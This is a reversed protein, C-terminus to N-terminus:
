RSPPPLTIKPGIYNGTAPDLRERVLGLLVPSGLEFAKVGWGDGRREYRDSTETERGSQLRLWLKITVEGPWKHEEVSFVQMAEMPDAMVSRNLASVFLAAVCVAEPTRFRERLAPSLKAMFAARAEPSDDTFALYKALMELDGNQIAWGFTEAAAMPTARGQNTPIRLAADTVGEPRAKLTALRTRLRVLEAMDPDAGSLRDVETHLRRNERQAQEPDVRSAAALESRLTRNARVEVVATALGGAVLAGVIVAKMKSMAFVVGVAGASMASVGAVGAASALAAGTISAALGAPAASAIAGGLAVGLAGATSRIGRQALLGSLKDLARDVRMRATGENLQLTRALESFPLGRFYRLLLIERDREGLAQLVEDLLPRLREWELPREPSLMDHMTHAEQERAQRRQETRRLKLAAFRTSTYLWSVLAPHSRLAAAKRALDIFVLQAVDQARHADGLHRQATAFVLDLNRRVLEAFAEEAGEDAYRRLLDADDTM